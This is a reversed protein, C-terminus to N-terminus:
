SSRDRAITRSADGNGGAHLAVLGGAGDAGATSALITAAPLASLPRSTGRGINTSLRTENLVYRRVYVSHFAQVLMHHQSSTVRQSALGLPGAGGYRSRSGDGGVIVYFIRGDGLDSITGVQGTPSTV